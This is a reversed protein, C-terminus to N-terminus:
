FKVKHNEMFVGKGNASYDDKFYGVFLESGEDSQSEYYIERGFGINTMEKFQNEFM